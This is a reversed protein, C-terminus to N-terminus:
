DEITEWAEVVEWDDALVDEQTPEWMKESHHHGGAGRTCVVVDLQRGKAVQIPLLYTIQGARRIIRGAKIELLAKSFDM